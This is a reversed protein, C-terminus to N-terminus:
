RRVLRAREEATSWRDLAIEVQTSGGNNTNVALATFREPMGSTQAELRGHGAVIGFVLVVVAGMAATGYRLCWGTKM